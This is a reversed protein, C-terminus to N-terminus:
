LSPRPPRSVLALQSAADVVAEVDPQQPVRLRVAYEDGDIVVPVAGREREVNVRGVSEFGKVVWESEGAGVVHPQPRELM